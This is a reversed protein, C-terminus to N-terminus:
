IFPHQKMHVVGIVMFTTNELFYFVRYPFRRLNAGRIDEFLIQYQLPNKVIVELCHELHSEFLDGLGIVQSDYWDIAELIDMKASFDIKLDFRECV